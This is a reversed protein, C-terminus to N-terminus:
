ASYDATCTIAFDVFEGEAHQASHALTVAHFHKSTKLRKIFAAMEDYNLAGGAVSIAGGHETFETIWVKPPMLMALEDMLKVPGLRDKKLKDLIAIKEELLKKERGISEVEGIKKKLEATDAKSKTIRQKVDALNTAEHQYWFFNGLLSGVTLLGFLVIQQLGLERKKSVRVPLLNIRIM